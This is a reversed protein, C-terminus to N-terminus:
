DYPIIMVHVKNTLNILQSRIDRFHCANSGQPILEEDDLVYVIFHVHNIKQSDFQAPVFQDSIFAQSIFAVVPAAPIQFIWGSSGRNAQLRTILAGQLYQCYNLLKKYIAVDLTRQHIDMVIICIYLYM